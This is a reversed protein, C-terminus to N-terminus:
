FAFPKRAQCSVWWPPATFDSHLQKNAQKSASLHNPSYLRIITPISPPLLQHKASQAAIYISSLHM